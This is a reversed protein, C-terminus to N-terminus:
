RLLVMRMEDVAAARTRAAAAATAGEAQAKVWKGAERGTAKERAAGSWM